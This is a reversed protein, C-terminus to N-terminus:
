RIKALKPTSDLPELASLRSQLGERVLHVLEPQGILNLVNRNCVESLTLSPSKFVAQELGPIISQGLEAIGLAFSQFLGVWFYKPGQLCRCMEEAKLM